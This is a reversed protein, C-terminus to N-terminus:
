FAGKLVDDGLFTQRPKPTNEDLFLLVFVGGRVATGALEQIRNYSKLVM